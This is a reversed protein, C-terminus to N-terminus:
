IETLARKMKLMEGQFCAEAEVKRANFRSYISAEDASYPTKLAAVIDRPSWFGYWNWLRGVLTLMALFSGPRNTTSGLTLVEHYGNGVAWGRM